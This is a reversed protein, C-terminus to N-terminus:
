GCWEEVAKRLAAFRSLSKPTEDIWDRLGDSWGWGGVYADIHTQEIFSRYVEPSLVGLVASDAETVVLVVVYGFENKKAWHVADAKTWNVEKRFLADKAAHKLVTVVHRRDKATTVHREARRMAEREVLGPSWLGALILRRDLHEVEPATLLGDAIKREALRLDQDTM